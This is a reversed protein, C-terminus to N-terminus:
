PNNCFFSVRKGQPLRRYVSHRKQNDQPSRLLKTYCVNYSTIRALFNNEAKYIEDDEGGKELMESLYEFLTKLVREFYRHYSSLMPNKYIRKYNFDKLEIMAKFVDDSFGIRGTELSTAILDNVITNIIESNNEGLLKRVDASLEDRSILKLQLADEFDRGMYTIVEYLM